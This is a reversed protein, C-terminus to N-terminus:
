LTVADHRTLWVAVAFRAGETLAAAQSWSALLDAVCAELAVNALGRARVLAPGSVRWPRKTPHSPTCVRMGAPTTAADPACLTCRSRSARYFAHFSSWSGDAQGPLPNGCRQWRPMQLAHTKWLADSRAVTSMASSTAGVSSLDEASLLSLVTRLTDNSLELWATSDNLM